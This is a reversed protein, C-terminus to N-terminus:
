ERGGDLVYAKYKEVAKEVTGAGLYTNYHRKWYEALSQPDNRPLADPKRWYYIRAMAVQYPLNYSLELEDDYSDGLSRVWKQLVPNYRLYNTHIDKETRPEIQFVGRAPGGLQKLYTGLNSETAATLMLLEVATESYLDEIPSTSLVEQIMERFHQPYIMENEKPLEAYYPSAALMVVMAFEIM